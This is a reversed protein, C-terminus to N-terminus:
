TYHDVYGYNTIAKHSRSLGADIGVTTYASDAHDSIWPLELLFLALWEDVNCLIRNVSGSITIRPQGVDYSRTTTHVIITPPDELPHPLVGM